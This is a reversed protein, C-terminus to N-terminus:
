PTTIVYFRRAYDAAQTDAYTSASSGFTGSYLLTWTNTIPALALNTSAWIRYGQGSSGSFKLQVSGNALVLPTQVFQPSGGAVRITGSALSSTDWRLGGTLAPLNTASFSGTYAGANFLKFTDGSALAAGSATVTLVGGFNLTTVGQILDNTATTGTKSLKMLNTGGLNLTNSISLTGISSGIALTGGSNVTVTGGISGTGGLTAGSGVNVASATLSGNVLLTGASVAAPGAFSDAGSLITTGTGSSTLTGTGSIANAVTITDSHSFALAANNTVPGTGLSGCTSGNGLQLKGSGILTGGSYGNTPCTLTVTNTGLKKLWNTGLVPGSIIFTVVSGNNVTGVSSPALLNIPGAFDVQTNADNVQLTGASGNGDGGNLDIGNTIVGSSLYNVGGGVALDAGNSVVAKGLGLANDNRIQLEGQAIYTNGHYVNSAGTSLVGTNIDGIIVQVAGTKTLSGPGSIQGAIYFTGNTSLVTGGNTGLTWSRNFSSAAPRSGAFELTGGNLTINTGAGLYTASGGNAVNSIVLTGGNVVVPGTFDNNVDFLVLTGPGTKTIGTNGTIKGGGNYFTYNVASNSVSVSLPRVAAAIAVQNNAGTDDFTVDDATYFTLTNADWNPTANIDWNNGSGGSWILNDNSGSVTVSVLGSGFDNLTFTYRTDTSVSANFASLESGGYALLPYTAETLPSLATIFFSASSGDVNGAVDIFDNIGAGANTATNLEYDLTVSGNLSLNDAFNLTGVANTGGPVLYATSACNVTGTVTGSGELSQIASGASLYFANSAYAVNSVSSADFVANSLLTISPTTSISANTGLALTGGQIVTVGSYSNNPSNLTWTGADTKTFQLSQTIPGNIIGNAVGGVQFPRATTALGITGNLVLTGANAVIYAVGGGSFVYMNGNIVNSGAENFIAGQNQSVIYQLNGPINISGNTGNLHLGAGVLNNAVYITRTEAAVGGLSASNNIWVAGGNNTFAGTFTNTGSLLLAGFGDKYLANTGSIVGPVTLTQNTTVYWSQNTGLAVPGALTLGQTANSMNVAVAGATAPTLTLTNASNISVPAPVNSVLLGKVTFDEALWNSLNAISLSSYIVLDGSGPLASGSWNAPTTWQNDTSGKWTQDGLAPWPLGALALFFLVSPSPLTKKNM